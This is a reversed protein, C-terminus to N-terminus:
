ERNSSSVVFQIFLKSTEKLDNKPDLKYLNMFQRRLKNLRIADMNCSIELTIGEITCKQSGLKKCDNIQKVIDQTQKDLKFLFNGSSLPLQFSFNLKFIYCVYGNGM